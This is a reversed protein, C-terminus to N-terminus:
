NVTSEYNYKDINSTVCKNFMSDLDAYGKWNYSFNNLKYGYYNAFEDGLAVNNDTIKMSSLDFSCTGDSLLTLNNLECLTYFEQYGTTHEDATRRKGELAKDYEYASISYKMKYVCYIKNYPNVDVNDKGTLFYYGVFESSVQEFSYDELGITETKVMKSGGVNATILDEAQSCIKGLSEEPIDSLKVAYEPLGEVTYEKKDESLTKDEQPSKFEASITVVDGNFVGNAVDATYRCLSNGGSINVKSQPATGSFTVTLNEFADVMEQKDAGEPYTCSVGDVTVIVYKTHYNKVEGYVDSDDLNWKIKKKKGNIETEFKGSKEELLEYKIENFDPVPKNDISLRNIYGQASSFIKEALYEAAAAAQPDESAATDEDLAALGKEIEKEADEASMKDLQGLKNEIDKESTGSNGCASMTICVCVAMVAAAFSKINRKM